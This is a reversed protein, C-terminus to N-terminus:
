TASHIRKDISPCNPQNSDALQQATISVRPFTQTEVSVRVEKPQIGLLPIALDYLLQTNLTNSFGGFKIAAKLNHQVPEAKRPPRTELRMLRKSISVTQAEGSVERWAQTKGM